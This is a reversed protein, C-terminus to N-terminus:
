VRHGVVAVVVIVRHADAAAVARLAERTNPYSAFQPPSLYGAAADINAISSYDIRHNM